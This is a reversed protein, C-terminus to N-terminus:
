RYTSLALGANRLVDQWCVDAAAGAYDPRAQALRDAHFAIFRTLPEQRKQARAADRITVLHATSLAALKATTYAALKPNMNM